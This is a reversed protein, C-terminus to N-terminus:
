RLARRETCAGSPDDYRADWRWSDYTWSWPAPPLPGLMAELETRVLEALRVGGHQCLHQEPTGDPRLKRIPRHQPDDPRSRVWMGAFGLAEDTSVYRVVGPFREPLEAFLRNVEIRDLEGEVDPLPPLGLWLVQAGTSSMQTVARDLLWRYWDPHNRALEFDDNGMMMVVADPDHSVVDQGLVAEWVPGYSTFGFAPLAHPDFLVEPGVNAALAPEADFLLSNGATAIVPRQDDEARVVPATAAVLAVVVV